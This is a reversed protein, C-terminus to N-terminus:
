VDCPPWSKKWNNIESNRLAYRAAKIARLLTLIALASSRLSFVTRTRFLSATVRKRLRSAHMRLISSTKSTKERTLSIWTLHLRALISIKSLGKLFSIKYYYNEIVVVLDMMRRLLSHAVKKPSMYAVKLLM